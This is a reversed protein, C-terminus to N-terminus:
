GDEAPARRAATAGIGAAIVPFPPLSSPTNENCAFPRRPEAGWSAARAGHTRGAPSRRATDWVRVHKLPRRHNSQEIRRGTVGDEESRHGSTRSLAGCRRERPHLHHNRSWRLRDRTPACIGTIRRAPCESTPSPSLFGRVAAGDGVSTYDERNDLEVRRTYMPTCRHVDGYKATKM